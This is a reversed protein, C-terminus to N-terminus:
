PLIRIPTGDRVLQWIEDLEENTVAICGDTWDRTMYERRVADSVIYNPLGHIMIMGGPNQGLLRARHRDRENPYSIHIAKYYRSNPNRWDLVYDGEPTREDGEREKHGLPNDGLAIRYKRLVRGDAVLKLRRASKEVLVQDALRAETPPPAACGGALWILAMLSVMAIMRAARPGSTSVQSDIPVLRGTPRSHHPAEIPKANPM